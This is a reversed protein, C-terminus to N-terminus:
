HDRIGDLNKIRQLPDKTLLRQLLDKVIPDVIAKYDPESDKYIL